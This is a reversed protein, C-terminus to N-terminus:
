YDGVAGSKYLGLYLILGLFMKLEGGTTDKWTAARGKVVPMKSHQNRAYLNTSAALREILTDSFFLKFFAVPEPSLVGFSSPLHLLRSHEPEPHEYPKYLPVPPLQATGQDSEM